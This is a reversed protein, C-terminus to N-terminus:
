RRAFYGILAGALPVYLPPFRLPIYQLVQPVFVIIAAGILAGILAAALTSTSPLRVDKLAFSGTLGVVWIIVAFLGAHVFTRVDGSAPIYALGIPAVYWAAAFQLVVLILYGIM